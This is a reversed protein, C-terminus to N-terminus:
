TLVNVIQGDFTGRSGIAPQNIVGALKVVVRRSRVSRHVVLSRIRYVCGTKRIM